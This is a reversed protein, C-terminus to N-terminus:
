KGHLNQFIITLNTILFPIQKEFPDLKHRRLIFSSLIRSKRVFRPDLDFHKLINRLQELFWNQQPFMNGLIHFFPFQKQFM